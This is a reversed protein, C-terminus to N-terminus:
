TWQTRIKQAASLLARKDPKPICEIVLGGRYDIAELATWVEKFDLHGYGPVWRNSDALDVHFLREGAIRFADGVKPEEINAHFTDLHLGVNDKGICEIVELAESVTNVLRSEYRNLPELTIKVSFDFSACERLSEVLLTKDGVIGRLTGIIVVAGFRKAFRMHGKIRQVARERVRDDPASLSLREKELAQGTALALLRLRERELAEAVKDMDVRVPDTIAFEVGEYGSEAVQRLAERWETPAFPSFPTPDQLPVVLGLPWGKM